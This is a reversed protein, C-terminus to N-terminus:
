YLSALVMSLLVYVLSFAIFIDLKEFFSAVGFLLFPIGFM